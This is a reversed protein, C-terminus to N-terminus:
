FYKSDEYEFDLLLLITLDIVALRRHGLGLSQCTNVWIGEGDPGRHQLLDSMVQLRRDLSVIPKGVLSLQGVIGCM